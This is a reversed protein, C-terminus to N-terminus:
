PLCCSSEHRPSHPHSTGPQLFLPKVESRYRVRTRTPTGGAPVCAPQHLFAHTTPNPGLSLSDPLRTINNPALSQLQSSGAHPGHKSALCRAPRIQGANHGLRMRGTGDAAIGSTHAGPLRAEKQTLARTSNSSTPRHVDYWAFAHGDGAPNHWAQLGPCGRGKRATAFLTDANEGHPTQYPGNAHAAAAAKPALERARCVLDLTEKSHRLSSAQAAQPQVRM